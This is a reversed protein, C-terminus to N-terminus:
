PWAFGSRRALTWAMKWLNVHEKDLSNFKVGLLGRFSEGMIAGADVFEHTACPDQPSTGGNLEDVEVLQEDSLEARMDSVFAEALQAATAATNM